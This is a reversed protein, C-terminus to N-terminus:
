ARDAILRRAESKFHLLEVLFEDAGRPDLGGSRVGFRGARGFFELAALLLGIGAGVDIGLGLRNAIAARADTAVVGAGAAAALFVFVAAEAFASAHDGSM